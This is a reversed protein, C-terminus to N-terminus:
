NMKEQIWGISAGVIGYFVISWAADIIHGNLTYIDSVAFTTLGMGFGILIGIWAGFLFGSKLNAALGTFKKYITSMAFAQVFLGISLYFMDTPTKTVSSNSVSRIFDDAILDYYLFGLVFLITFGVLTGALNSKSFM